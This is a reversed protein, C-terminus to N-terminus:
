ASIIKGVLSCFVYDPHISCFHLLFFSFGSLFCSEKSHFFVSTFFNSFITFNLAFFEIMCWIPLFHFHFQLSPSSVSSFPGTLHLYFCCLFIDLLFIEGKWIFFYSLNLHQVRGTNLDRGLVESNMRETEREGKELRSFNLCNGLQRSFFAVVHCINVIVQSVTKKYKKQKSVIWFALFYTEGFNDWLYSTAFHFIVGQLM